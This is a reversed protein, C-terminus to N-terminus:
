SWHAILLSSTKTPLITTTLIILIGKQIDCRHQVDLCHVDWLCSYDPIQEIEKYAKQIFILTGQYLCLTSRTATNM